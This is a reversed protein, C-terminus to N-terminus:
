RELYRNYMNQEIEIYRDVNFTTKLTNVFNDYNDLSDEGTIFKLFSENCYTDIDTYLASVEESEESTAYVGRPILRLKADEVGEAWMKFGEQQQPYEYYQELYEPAQNFGPAPGTARSNMSLAEAISMGEPNHLITDTYVHKGDVMNYSVGEVGFNLMDYGEDSYWFDMWKVAAEPDKCATTIALSRSAVDFEMTPFENKEGKNRVPYPACALDYSPDETEMQRLYMGLQGGLTGMTAGANGQVIKADVATQKVSGFEKDLLGNQYWDRMVSLYEKMENQLPGFKVTDGDLYLRKGIGFAGNFANNDSIIYWYPLSLPADAGKKEKFATLVKTWDDITEPMDLGLEELWDRRILPGSFTRYQGTNLAPFAFYQGSDTKSGKDYTEALEGETLAKKLNPAKDLYDNLPIIIGEDIAAQPGGSFTSWDYEIMDPLDRSAVMLNFKEKEQGLAPHTFDIHVGSDKERQQYISIDNFSNVRTAITSLMPAWYTFNAAGGETSGGSSTKDGGCGSLALVSLTMAAALVIALLKKRKKM